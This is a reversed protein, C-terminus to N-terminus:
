KSTPKPKNDLKGLIRDRSQIKQEAQFEKVQTGADVGKIIAARWRDGLTNMASKHQVRSSKDAKDLANIDKRFDIDQHRSTNKEKRKDQQYDREDQSDQVIEAKSQLEFAYQLGQLSNWAKEKQLRMGAREVLVKDYSVAIANMTKQLEDRTKIADALNMSGYEQSLQSVTLQGDLLSAIAEETKGLRDDAKDFFVSVMGSLKEGLKLLRNESSDATVLEAEISSDHVVIMKGPEETNAINAAPTTAASPM